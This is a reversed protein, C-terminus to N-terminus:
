KRLQRLKNMLRHIRHEQPMTLPILFRGLKHNLWLIVLFRLGPGNAWAGLPLIKALVSLRALRTIELGTPQYDKDTIYKGM